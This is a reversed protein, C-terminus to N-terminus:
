VVCHKGKRAAPQSPFHWAPAQLVASPASGVGALHVWRQASLVTLVSSARLQYTRRLNNQMFMVTGSQVPSPLM